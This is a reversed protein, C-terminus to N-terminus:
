LRVQAWRDLVSQRSVRCHRALTSAASEAFELDVGALPLTSGIEGTCIPKKFIRRNWAVFAAGADLVTDARTRAVTTWWRLVTETRSKPRSVIFNARDDFDEPMLGGACLRRMLWDRDVVHVAGFIDAWKTLWPWLGRDDPGNAQDRGPLRRWRLYPLLAAIAYVLQEPTQGGRAGKYSRLHRHAEDRVSEIAAIQQADFLHGKGATKSAYTKNARDVANALKSSYQAVHRLDERPLQQGYLAKMASLEYECLSRTLVFRFFQGTEGHFDRLLEALYDRAKGLAAVKKVNEANKRHIKIARAATLTTKM